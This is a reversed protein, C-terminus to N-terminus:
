PNSKKRATCVLHSPNLPAQRRSAERSRVQQSSVGTVDSTVRKVQDLTVANPVPGPKGFLIEKRSPNPKRERTRGPLPVPAFRCTYIRKSYACRRCVPGPPEFSRPRFFRRSKPDDKWWRFFGILTEPQFVDPLRLLPFGGLDHSVAFASRLPTPIGRRPIPDLQFRMELSKVPLSPSPHDICTSGTSVETPIQCNGTRERGSSAGSAARRALPLRPLDHLWRTHHSAEWRHGLAHRCAFPVNMPLPRPAELNAIGDTRSAVPM